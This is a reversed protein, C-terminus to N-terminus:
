AGTVFASRQHPHCAARISMEISPSISRLLFGNCCASWHVRSLAANAIIAMSQLVLLRMLSIGKGNGPPGVGKLDLWCGLPSGLKTQSLCLCPLWLCSPRLSAVTLLGAAVSRLCPFHAPSGECCDASPPGLPAPAKPLLCKAAFLSRRRSGAPHENCSASISARCLLSLWSAM